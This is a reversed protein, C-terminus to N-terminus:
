SGAQVLDDAPLAVAAGAVEFFRPKSIFGEGCDWFTWGSGM